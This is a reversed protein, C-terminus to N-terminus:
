YDLINYDTKSEFQPCEEDPKPYDQNCNRCIFSYPREQVPVYHGETHCKTCYRLKKGGKTTEYLGYRDNFDLEEERKLREELEKIKEDKDQLAERVEIIKENANVLAERLSVLYEKLEINDTASKLDRISKTIDGAGKISALATSIMTLPEM